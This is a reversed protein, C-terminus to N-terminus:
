FHFVLAASPRISKLDYTDAALRLRVGSNGTLGGLGINKPGIEVGVGYVENKDDTFGRRGEIWRYGARAFILGSEGARFGVRGMAGYEYDIDEFGKAGQAEVGVVIPGLQVDFGVFADVSAGRASGRQNFVGGMPKSDFDQYAGGVGFYPEIGFPRTGDPATTPADQAAAPLSLAAAGLAAAIVFKIM